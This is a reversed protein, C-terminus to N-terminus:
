GPTEKVEQIKKEEPKAEAQKKADDVAKKRQETLQKLCHELEKKIHPEPQEKYLQQLDRV